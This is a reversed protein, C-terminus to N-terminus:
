VRWWRGPRSSCRRSGAAPSPIRSARAIMLLPAIGNLNSTDSRSAHASPLRAIPQSARGHRQVKGEHADPDRGFIVLPPHGALQHDSELSGRTREAHSHQSLQMLSASVESCSIECVEEDVLLHLQRVERLPREELQDVGHPKADALEQGELLSQLLGFIRRAVETRRVHSLSVEVGQFLQSTM